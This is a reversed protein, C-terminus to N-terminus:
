GPRDSGMSAPVHLAADELEGEAAVLLVDGLPRLLRQLTARVAAPAAVIFTEVTSLLEPHRQLLPALSDAHIAKDITAPDLSLVDMDTFSPALGLVAANMVQRATSVLTPVADDGLAYSAVMGELVPEGHRMTVADAALWRLVPRVDRRLRELLAGSFPGGEALAPVSDPRWWALRLCLEAYLGRIVLAAPDYPVSSTGVPQQPVSGEFVPWSGGYLPDVHYAGRSPDEPGPQSTDVAVSGEALVLQCATRLRGFRVRYRDDALDDAVALAVDPLLIGYLRVSDYRIMRPMGVTWNDDAMLSSRLPQSSLTLRRLTSRSFELVPSLRGSIVADSVLTECIRYPDHGSDGAAASLLFANLHSPPVGLEAALTLTRAALAALGASGTPLWSSALAEAEGAVVAGMAGRITACLLSAVLERRGEATAERARGSVFSEADSPEGARHPEGSVAVAIAQRRKASLVLPQGDLVVGALPGELGADLHVAPRSALGLESWVETLGEQAAEVVGDRESAPM